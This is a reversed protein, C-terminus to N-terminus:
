DGGFVCTVPFAECDIDADGAVMAALAIVLGIALALLLEYPANWVRLAREARAVAEEVEPTM